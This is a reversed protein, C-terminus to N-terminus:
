MSLSSVATTSAIAEELRKIVLIADRQYTATAGAGDSVSITTTPAYTTLAKYAAIEASSLATEVPTALPVYIYVENADLFAKFDDVTTTGREAYAFGIINSSTTAIGGVTEGNIAASFHTCFTGAADIGDFTCFYRDVNNGAKTWKMSSTLKIKTIRRVYVGRALDVEDCVWQQGSEDTYNGSSAVPIGPLANPTQLTLTQETYPAYVADGLAASVQGGFAVTSKEFNLCFYGCKAPTRFSEGVSIAGLPQQSENYFCGGSFAHSIHYATGPVCPQLGTIWYNSNTVIGFNASNSDFNQYQGDQFLSPNLLNEGTLRVTVTGSGGASTIPAPATPMPTGDQTSKGFVRLGILPAALADSVSVSTGSASGVLQGSMSGGNGCADLRKNIKSLKAELTEGNEDMVAKPHTVPMIQQGNQYLTKVKAM